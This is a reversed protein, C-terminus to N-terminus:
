VYLNHAGTDPATAGDRGETRREGFRQGGSGGGDGRRAMAGGDGAAGGGGGANGGGAGAQGGVTAESRMVAVERRTDIMSADIGYGSAKLHDALKERDHDLAAATTEREARLQVSLAGGQLTLRVAVSGYEPPDLRINLVKVVARSSATGGADTAAPTASAMEAAADAIVDGLRMMTASPLGAMGSAPTADSRAAVAQGGASGGGGVTPKVRALGEGADKPGVSRAGRPAEPRDDAEDDPVSAAAKAGAPVAEAKAGVAVRSAVPMAKGGDGTVPIAGATAAAAIGASTVPVPAFHTEVGEVTVPVRVPAAPQGDDSKPTVVIVGRAGRGEPQPQSEAPPRAVGIEQGAPLVFPVVQVAETVAVGSGGGTVLGSAVAAAAKGDSGDGEPSAPRGAGEKIDGEAFPREAADTAEAPPGAGTPAESAFRGSALLRHLGSGASVPKGVAKGAKGEGHEAEKPAGPDPKAGRDGLKEFVDRFRDEGAAADPSAAGDATAGRMDALGALAATLSAVQTM